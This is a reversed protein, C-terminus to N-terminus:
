GRPLKTPKGIFHPLRNRGWLHTTLVLYAGGGLAVGPALGAAGGRVGRASTLAAARVRSAPPSWPFVSHLSTSPRPPPAPPPPPLPVWPPFPRWRGTIFPAIERSPPGGQALGRAPSSSLSGHGGTLDLLQARRCGRAKVCSRTTDNGGFGQGLGSCPCPLTQDEERSLASFRRPLHLKCLPGKCLWLVQVVM